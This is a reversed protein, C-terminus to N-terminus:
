TWQTLLAQLHVVLAVGDQVKAVGQHGEAAPEYDLPTAAAKAYTTILADSDFAQLHFLLCAGGLECHLRM